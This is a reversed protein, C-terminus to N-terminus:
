LHRATLTKYLLISVVFFWDCEVSVLFVSNQNTIILGKAQLRRAARLSNAQHADLSVATVDTKAGATIKMDSTSTTEPASGPIKSLPPQVGNCYGGRRGAGFFDKM